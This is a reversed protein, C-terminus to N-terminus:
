KILYIKLKEKGQKKHSETMENKEVTLTNPTVPLVQEDKKQM